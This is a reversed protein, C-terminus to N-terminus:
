IFLNFTLKVTVRMEHFLQFINSDHEFLTSLLPICVHFTKSFINDLLFMCLQYLCDVVATVLIDKCHM